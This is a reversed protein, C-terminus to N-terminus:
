LIASDLVRDAVELGALYAGEVRGGSLYDGAIWLGTDVQYAGKQAVVTADTPRAFRWRHSLIVEGEIGLGTQLHPMLLAAAEEPEIELHQRAFDPTSHIVVFRNNRGPRSREFSVFDIVPDDGGFCADLPSGDSSMMISESELVVTWTPEMTFREVIMSVDFAQLMGEMQNVPATCVVVKATFQDGTTTTLQYGDDKAVVTEVRVGSDIMLGDALYRGFANMYPTGVFRAQTDPSAILEGNTMRGMRPAWRAVAGSREAQQLVHLFADSRATMFQAGIDARGGDLRKSSLRGGPGRSKEVIRTHQPPLQSACALGCVGAGIIVYHFDQM